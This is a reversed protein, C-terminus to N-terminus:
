RLLGFGFEDPNKRRAVGGFWEMVRVRGQGNDNNVVIAFRFPVAPEDKAPATLGIYDLPLRASYRTHNGERNVTVPVSWLGKRKANDSEHCWVAPGANSLGLSIETLAGQSNQFALQLSDQTWMQAPSQNQVHRSDTVDFDLLLSSGDHALRASLALDDPGAWKARFPDYALEYVDEARDLRITPAAAVALPDDVRAVPYPHHVALPLTVQRDSDGNCAIILTVNDDRFRTDAALQLPVDLVSEVGSGLLKAARGIEEGSANRVSASLRAAAQGRNRIVLPLNTSGTSAASVFEPAEFFSETPSSPALLDGTRSSKLYIPFRDVNVLAPGASTPMVQERGFMDFRTYDGKATVWLRAASKGPRPWCLYTLTGDTLDEFAYATLDPHLAVDGIPRTNALRRILENYALFSPKPRNDCTVLGMSDDAWSDMDWFDQLTFWTYFESNPRSKAYGIKQVLTAAQQLAGPADYASRSGAETNAVPRAAHGKENMWTQVMDQRMTYDAVSGHSHFGAVDFLDPRQLLGRSFGKKEAPHQVTVGASVVKIGPNAGKLAPTFTELLGLYQDLTGKFFELDPENWFELYKVNPHAALAAGLAAAHEAVAPLDTAPGKWAPQPKTWLPFADSYLVFADIKDTALDDFMRALDTPCAPGGRNPQLTQGDIGIRVLDAGLLRLWERHLRTETEGQWTNFDQIGFWMSARNIRHGNPIFVAAFDVCTAALGAATADVRAVYSGAPLVGEDLTVLADGYATATFPASRVLAPGGLIDHLEVALIGSVPAATANRVRYSLSTPTGPLTYLGCTAPVVGLSQARSVRGVLALDDIFISGTGGAKSTLRIKRIIAPFTLENFDPVTKANIDLRLMRWGDGQLSVGTTRFARRNADELDFSLELDHGKPNVDFEIAQLFASFRSVREKELIIEAGGHPTDAFRYKLEGVYSGHRSDLQSSALYQNGAFWADAAVGRVSRARWTSVDEFDEVILRGPADTQALLPSALCLVALVIASRHPTRPM